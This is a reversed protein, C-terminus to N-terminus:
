TNHTGPNVSLSASLSTGNAVYLLQNDVYVGMSAVGKSCTSTTATASYQVTSSVTEGNSPSSVVVTASASPAFLLLLSLASFLAKMFGGRRSVTDRLHQFNACFKM